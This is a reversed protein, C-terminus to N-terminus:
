GTRMPNQFTGKKWSAAQRRSVPGKSGRVFAASGGQGRRSEWGRWGAAIIESAAGKLATM